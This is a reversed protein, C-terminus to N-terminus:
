RRRCSTIPAPTFRAACKANPVLCIACHLDALLGTKGNGRPESKIALRITRRGDSDLRGYIAEVFKRQGPLLKM